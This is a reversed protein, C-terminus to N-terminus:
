NQFKKLVDRVVILDKTDIDDGISLHRVDMRERITFICIVSHDVVLAFEADPLMKITQNLTNVSQGSLGLNVYNIKDVENYLIDTSYEFDDSEVIPRSLICVKKGGILM